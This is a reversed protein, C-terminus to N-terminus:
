KKGEIKQFTAWLRVAPSVRLPASALAHSLVQESLQQHRSPVLECALCVYSGGRWGCRRKRRLLAAARTPRRRRRPTHLRGFFSRARPSHLLSKHLLIPHDDDVSRPQLSACLCARATDIANFTTMTRARQACLGTKDDCTATNYQEGRDRADGRGRTAWRATSTPPAAAAAASHGRRRGRGRKGDKEENDLADQLASLLLSRGRAACPRPRRARRRRAGGRGCWSLRGGPVGPM